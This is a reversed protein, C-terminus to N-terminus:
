SGDAAELAAPAPGATTEVARGDLYLRSGKQAYVVREAEIAVGEARIEGPGFEPKKQYVALGVRAGKVSSDGIMLTSVDKAAAGVRAGVVELRRAVARSMEGVSVGKDGAGHIQVGDIEVSSGSLDIGDNGSDVFRSEAISGDSFDADLADSAARAFLSRRLTFRSRVLNLADEARAGIFEAHEISVPSDQFTVAGTALTPGASLNEFRTWRVTSEKGEALVLLGGGGEGATITVPAGESGLLSVPSRVVISAGRELVLKAGGAITLPTGGGIVLTKSLVHRGPGIRYGGAARKVFPFAGANVVMASAAGAARSPEPYPWPFVPSARFGAGGLFRYALRLPERADVAGSDVPFDFERYRVAADPNGGEFLLPAPLAVRRGDARVLGLIELPLRQVNAARVRLRGGPVAERYAHVARAPDIAAALRRRNSEFVEVDFEVEPFDRHLVLLERSRGAETEALLAELYAPGAAEELKKLYATMFARSAFMREWFLGSRTGIVGPDLRQGADGDFGIPELRGAVPDYYFRLNHWILAHRAGLLESVATFAAMRRLDFAREADVRGERFGALLAAGELFARRLAPDRLTASSKFAEVPAISESSIGADDIEGHLSARRAWLDDEAFKLIPGERRGRSEVLRKEFHEELAYVGLDRGNLTTEIFGYRPALVDERELAAHYFWENLYARTGPHQISFERLGFLTQGRKLKVRFSWRETRLHDVWDGKLRIKMRASEGGSRARGDVFDEPGTVLVGKSLANGRVFSLRMMGEHPVDLVLRRPPASLHARAIRGSRRLASGAAGLSARVPGQLAVGALFLV